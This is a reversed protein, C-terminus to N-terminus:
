LREKASCILCVRYLRWPLLRGRLLTWLHWTMNPTSTGGNCTRRGYEAM